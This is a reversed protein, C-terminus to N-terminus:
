PKSPQDQRHPCSAESSATKRAWTRLIDVDDSLEIDLFRFNQVNKSEHTATILTIREMLDTAREHLELDPLEFESEVADAANSYTRYKIKAKAPGTVKIVPKAAIIRQFDCSLTTKTRAIVTPTIVDGSATSCLSDYGCNIYKVNTCGYFPAAALTLMLISPLFKLQQMNM